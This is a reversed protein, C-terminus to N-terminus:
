VKRVWISGTDLSCMVSAALKKEFELGGDDSCAGGVDNSRESRLFASGAM